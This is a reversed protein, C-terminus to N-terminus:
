ADGGTEALRLLDADDHQRHQEFPLGLRDDLQGRQLVEAGPDSAKRSRSVCLMPATKLVMSAVIRM